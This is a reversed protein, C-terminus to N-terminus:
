IFGLYTKWGLVLTSLVKVFGFTIIFSPVYTIWAASFKTQKETGVIEKEM